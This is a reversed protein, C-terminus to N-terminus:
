QIIWDHKIQFRAFSDAFNKIPHKREASVRNGIPGVSLSYDPKNNNRSTLFVHIAECRNKFLRELWRFHFTENVPQPTKIFVIQRSFKSAAMLQQFAMTKIIM